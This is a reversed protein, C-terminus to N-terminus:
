SAELKAIKIELSHIRKDYDKELNDIYEKLEEIETTNEEAVKLITNIQTKLQNYEHKIDKKLDDLNHSLGQISITLERLLFKDEEAQEKKIKVLEFNNEEEYKKWLTSHQDFYKALIKQTSNKFYYIILIGLIALLIIRDFSRDSFFLSVLGGLIEDM